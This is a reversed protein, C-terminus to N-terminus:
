SIPELLEQVGQDTEVPKLIIANIGNNVEDIIKSKQDAYDGYEFLPIVRVDVKLETAAREIGKRFNLVEQDSTEDLIAAIQYITVRDEKILLDTSSLVFLLTIVGISIIWFIWSNKFM